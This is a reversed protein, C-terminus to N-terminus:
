INCLGRIKQQFSKKFSKKLENRGKRKREKEKKKRQILPVYLHQPVFLNHTATYLTLKLTHINLKSLIVGLKLKYDGNLRGKVM